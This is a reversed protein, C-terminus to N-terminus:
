LRPSYTLLSREMFLNFAPFYEYLITDGTRGNRNKLIKLEVIRPDKRKAADVDFDKEGVGQLQLGILADSSYEVAGSEKFASMSVKAGYNERNFSSIGIVPIKMDRSLRKLATVVRDTNQKDTARLDEPALIQLYDIVVVPRNGTLSFHRQAKERIQAAGIYGLGESIWIHRAYGKYQLISGDILDLEPKSYSKYRSATTIQRVTKAGLADAGRRMANLMTLRSISKAALEYKSMELSMILVDHGGQAISDAIQLVFTTKGLSSIAGVIYLGEYLGGDFVADLEKFGTPVYPTSARGLTEALFADVYAAASEQQYNELSEQKANNIDTNKAAAVAEALGQRDKILMENADKYMGYLNGPKYFPIGLGDLGKCLEDAAKEGAPDNDLAIILPPGLKDAAIRELFRNVMAASGLAAAEGGAEIISMADIEAETIFVSGSEANLVEVNFISTHGAKQKSYRQQEETLGDRVDRALYSYQSTPIILRPSAPVNLRGEAKPHRWAPDYGLNFRSVTEESLGRKKWYDTDQIRKHCDVFYEAYSEGDWSPRTNKVRGGLGNAGRSVEIGLLEYAKEFKAAHDAIGYELGIIDFIDGSVGCSFCKVTNSQRHYSMSPHKDAHAPNLCHFPKDPKIGKSLLYRELQGKASERAEDRTM